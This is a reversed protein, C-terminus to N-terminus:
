NMLVKKTVTENNDLTVKVLLIQPAINFDTSIFDSSNIKNATYITKGLLDFVQVTTISANTTKVAIHKDKKIIQVENSAFDTIHNSLLNSSYHLEFRNNFTGSASNFTVSQAKLDYFTNTTKDLLYINQNNFLGDFNELAITFDGTLTTSFGIPVVDSDNFPLARGQIALNSTGLVSYLSVVNGAPM